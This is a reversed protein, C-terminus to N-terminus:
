QNRFRNAEELVRVLTGLNAIEEKLLLIQEEKEKLIQQYASKLEGLLLWHETSADRGGAKNTVVSAVPGVTERDPASSSDFIFYKGRVLQYRISNDRVRRRLTSISVKHKNRYEILSLWGGEESMGLFGM